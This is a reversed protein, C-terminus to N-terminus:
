YSNDYFLLFDSVVFIFYFVNSVTPTKHPSLRRFISPIHGQEALSQIMMSEAATDSLFQALLCIGSSCVIWNGLWRGGIENGATALTGASWEDQQINTAGTIVLIPILLTSSVIVISGAIGNRFTKRSVTTSYHSAQDFGNSMWFLNNIFPRGSPFGM